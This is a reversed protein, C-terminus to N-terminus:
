AGLDKRARRVLDLLAAEVAPRALGQPPRLPVALLDLGPGVADPRLRFSERLLRRWRNRLVANCLRAPVSMALRSHPLGNARVHLRLLPGSYRRGRRWVLDIDRRRALRHEPRLRRDM